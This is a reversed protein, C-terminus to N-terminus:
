LGTLLELSNVVNIPPILQLDYGGFEKAELILGRECWPATYDANDNGYLSLLPICATAMLQGMISENALGMMCRSLLDVTLAIWDSGHMDLSFPHPLPFLANPVAAFLKRQLSEEHPPLFFAAVRNRAEQVLAVEVFYDLPWSQLNESEPALALYYYDNRLIQSAIAHYKSDLQLQLSTQCPKQTISELFNLLRMTPHKAIQNISFQSEYDALAFRRKAKIQKLSFQVIAPTEEEINIILDYVIGSLPRAFVQRLKQSITTSIAADTVIQDILNETLSNLSLAFATSNQTVLWNIEADPFAFRLARLFPLRLLARQLDEGASIILIKYNEKTPGLVPLKEDM